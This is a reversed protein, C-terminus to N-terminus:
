GKPCPMGAHVWAELADVFKEHSLMVMSMMDPNQEDIAVCLNTLIDTLSAGAAIMELIRKTAALLSVAGAQPEAETDPQPEPCSLRASTSM